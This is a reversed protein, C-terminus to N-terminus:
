RSSGADGSRRRRARAEAGATVADDHALLEAIPKRRFLRTMTMTADITLPHAIATAQSFGYVADNSSTVLAGGPDFTVGM